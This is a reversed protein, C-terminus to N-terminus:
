QAGAPAIVDFPETEFRIARRFVLTPAYEATMYYRYNGPPLRRPVSINMRIVHCGRPLLLPWLTDGPYVVGGSAFIGGVVGHSEADKCYDVVVTVSGGALVPGASREIAFPQKVTAVPGGVVVGWLVTLGILHSALVAIVGVRYLWPIRM